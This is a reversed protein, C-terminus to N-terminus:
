RPVEPIGQVVRARGTLPQTVVTYANAGDAVPIHAADVQGQPLFYVYARGKSQPERQRPANAVQFSAISQGARLLEARPRVRLPRVRASPM